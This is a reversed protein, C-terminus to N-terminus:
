EEKHRKQLLEKRQLEEERMQRPLKRGVTPQEDDFDEPDEFAEEVLHTPIRPM